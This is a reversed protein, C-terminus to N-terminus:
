KEGNRDGMCFLLPYFDSRRMERNQSVCALLASAIDSKAKLLHASGKSHEELLHIYIGCDFQLDDRIAVAFLQPLHRRKIFALGNSQRPEKQAGSLM